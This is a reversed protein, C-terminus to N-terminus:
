AVSVSKHEAYLIAEALEAQGGSLEPNPNLNPNPNTNPNARGGWSLPAGERRGFSAM